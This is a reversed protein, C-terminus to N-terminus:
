LEGACGVLTVKGRGRTVRLADDLSDESGICDYVADFGGLFVEKGITPKHKTTEPNQLVAETLKNRNTIGQDVGLTLGLIPLADHLSFPCAVIACTDVYLIGGSTTNPMLEDSW